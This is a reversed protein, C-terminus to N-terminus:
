RSATSCRDARRLRVYTPSSSPSRPPPPPSDRFSRPAAANMPCAPPRSAFSPSQLRRGAARECHGRDTVARLGAIAASGYSRAAGSGTGGGTPAGDTQLLRQEALALNEPRGLLVVVDGAEFRWDADPVSRARARAAARRHGRGARRARARGADPRGRARPRAAAGFAAAAAPQRRRRRRRDRRPLLRPVPQLAGRPDRPHAGARPQAARGLLLLSHSALMLSGELVEPCSRPPAPRWCGTSSATTSAHARDGAAGAAGAARPAPDQARGGHRRLHDVVRARRRRARRGAAGRPARRRRLRRQQRRGGGRARAASRRRARHVPHGRAELLRALNQGSRGFGCIIVHDQRAMTTAAIQTIQAARALWDNATLRRVIPEAFQILLPAALM